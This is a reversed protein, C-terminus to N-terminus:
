TGRDSCRVSPHKMFFVVARCQTWHRHTGIWVSHPEVTDPRGAPCDARYKNVAEWCRPETLYHATGLCFCQSLATSFHSFHSFPALSFPLCRLCLLRVLTVVRHKFILCITVTDSVKRATNIFHQYFPREFITNRALLEIKPFFVPM